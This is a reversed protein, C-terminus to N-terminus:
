CGESITENIKHYNEDQKQRSRSTISKETQSMLSKARKRGAKLNKILEDRNLGGSLIIPIQVIENPNLTGLNWSLASTIEGPAKEVKNRLEFSNGELDINNSITIEYADPQSISCFGAYANSDDYQLIIGEEADFEGFDNDFGDLGNIDFDIFMYLVVDELTLWTTNRFSFFAISYPKKFQFVDVYKRIYLSQSIDINDIKLNKEKIKRKMYENIDLDITIRNVTPGTKSNVLKYVPTPEINKLLILSDEGQIDSRRCKFWPGSFEEKGLYFLPKENYSM